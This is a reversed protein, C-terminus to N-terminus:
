VRITQFPPKTSETPHIENKRSIEYIGAELELVASVLLRCAIIKQWRDDEDNRPPSLHARKLLGYAHSVADMPQM